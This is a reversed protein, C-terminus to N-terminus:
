PQDLKGNSVIIIKNSQDLEIRIDTGAICTTLLSAAEKIAGKTITNMSCDDGWDDKVPIQVRLTVHINKNM